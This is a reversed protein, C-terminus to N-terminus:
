KSFKGAIKSSVICMRPTQTKSNFLEVHLLYWTSRDTINKTNNHLTFQVLCPYSSAPVSVNIFPPIFKPPQETLADLLYIGKASMSGQARRSSDLVLYSDLGGVTLGSSERAPEHDKLHLVVFASM